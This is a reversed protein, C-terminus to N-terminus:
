LVEVEADGFREIQKLRLRKEMHRLAGSMTKVRSMSAKRQWRCLFGAEPMQGHRTSEPPAVAWWTAWKTPAGKFFADVEMIIEPLKSLETCVWTHVM